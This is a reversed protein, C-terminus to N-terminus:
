KLVIFQKSEGNKFVVVYTGNPVTSIEVEKQENFSFIAEGLLNYLTGSQLNSFRIVESAPQPYLCVRENEIEQDQVSVQISPCSSFWYEYTNNHTILAKSWDPSIWFYYSDACNGNPYNMRENVCYSSISTAGMVRTGTPLLNISSGTGAFVYIGDPSLKLQTFFTFQPPRVTNLPNCGYTDYVVTDMLFRHGISSWGNVRNSGSVPVVGLKICSDDNIMYRFCNGKTSIFFLKKGDSSVHYSLINEDTAIYSNLDISKLYTFNQSVVEVHKGFYLFIYKESPIVYWISGSFTSQYSSLQKGTKSDFKTITNDNSVYYEAGTHSFNQFRGIVPYLQKYKELSWMFQENASSSSFLYQGDPSFKVDYLTSSHTVPYRFQLSGSKTNYVYAENPQDPIYPMDYTCQKVKASPIWLRNHRSNYSLTFDGGGYKGVNIVNIDFDSNGSVPNIISINLQHNSNLTVLAFHRGKDSKIIQLANQNDLNYRWREKLTLPDLCRLTYLDNLYLLSDIVIYSYNGYYPITNLFEGSNTKIIKLSDWHETATISLYGSYVPNNVGYYYLKNSYKLVEIGTRLSYLHCGWYTILAVTDSHPIRFIGIPKEASAASDLKIRNVVSESNLSYFLLADVEKIIITTDDYERVLSAHININKETGDTLSVLRFSEDRLLVVYNSAGLVAECTTNDFLHLGYKDITQASTFGFLCLTCLIYMVMIRLPIM